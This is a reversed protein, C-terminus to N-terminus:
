KAPEAAEITKFDIQGKNKGASVYLRYKVDPELPEPRARPVKPKLGRLPQGYVIAKTPMSNSDSILHWYAHPYKNTKEDDLNVVRIETLRLKRDFAFSVPYTTPMGPTPRVNRSPRVQALIQITPSQFWDTFFYGYCGALLLLVTILVITNKRM